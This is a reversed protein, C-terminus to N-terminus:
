AKWRLNLLHATALLAVGGVTLWIEAPHGHAQLLAWLMLLVGIGGLGVAAWRGHLRAGRWLAIGALPMAIALGVAHVDHSWLGGISSAMALLVSGALCHVLCLGSLSIASRDLWNDDMYEHYM